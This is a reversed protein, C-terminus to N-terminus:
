AGGAIPYTGADSGDSRWLQEGSAFFLIGNVNTLDDLPYVDKVSYPQPLEDVTFARAATNINWLLFLSLTGLIFPRKVRYYTM